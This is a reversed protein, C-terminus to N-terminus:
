LHPGSDEQKKLPERVVRRMLPQTGRVNCEIPGDSSKQPDVREEYSMLTRFAALQEPSVEIPQKYVIWTVNEYWPPTTLSGEYTWYTTGAPILSSVDLPQQLVWKMGKHKIYPICDVVSKLLPHAAGEELFLAVVVLGNDSSAVEPFSKCM